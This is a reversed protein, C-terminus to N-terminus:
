NSYGYKKLRVDGTRAHAEMGEYRSIRAAAAAPTVSWCQEFAHTANTVAADIDNSNGSAIETMISGDSPNALELKELSQPPRWEGAILCCSPDFPLPPLSM